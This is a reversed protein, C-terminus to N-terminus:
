VTFPSPFFRPQWTVDRQCLSCPCVLAVPLPPRAYTLEMTALDGSSPPYLPRISQQDSWLSRAMDFRATFFPLRRLLATMGANPIVPKDRESAPPAVADVPSADVECRM